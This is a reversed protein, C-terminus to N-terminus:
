AGFLINKIAEVDLHDRFHKALRSAQADFWELYAPTDDSSFGFGERTKLSCGGSLLSDEDEILVDIHPVVGLVKKQCVEEILTVGDEFYQSEGIFKNVILGRVLGRQEESFLALTGYLSAFIGGRNIDGVLLVPCQLREALGMNAVDNKLLNLEVPSGAGEVVVLDHRKALLDYSKLISPLVTKKYDGCDNRKLVGYAEGLVFVEAGGGKRPCMLVPNMEPFPEVGSAYAALAQSRAIRGGTSLTHVNHTMNQSKFPAVRYGEEKFIRCLAISVISKGVGSATGQIMIGKGM